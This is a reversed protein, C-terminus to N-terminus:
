RLIVKYSVMKEETEFRLIYCGRPLKTLDFAYNTKGACKKSEIMQGELNLIEVDLSQLHSPVPGLTFKGSTPNPYVSIGEYPNETLSVQSPEQILQVTQPDIGNATVTINALRSVVSVNEQYGAAITGNGNGSPTVTCWAADSVAAWTTNSAVTFNTSGAVATVYKVAPTVLLTVPAAEQTVTVVVPSTGPVTVTINATRVSPVTNEAVEAEIVGNGTGSSNVACWAADSAAVWSANSSVDFQTNGGAYAVNQNSPTVQVMPLGASQYVTVVVPDVGTGMFTIEATRPSLEQNATYQANVVLNGNGSSPVNCWASNSVATWTINSYLYLPVSGAEYSVYCEEPTVKLVPAAATQTLTVQVPTGGAPTVTINAVRQTIALNETYTATLIGNGTGSSTVTCWVQSCYATWASNSTITFEGTGPDSTVILNQPSVSMTPPAGAQTVTVSVAPIGAVTVTVTAVRSTLEPNANFTATISGNGTGSSTVTCWPM